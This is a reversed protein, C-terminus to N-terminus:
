RTFLRFTHWVAWAAWSAAAPRWAISPSHALYQEHLHHGLLMIAVGIILILWGKITM